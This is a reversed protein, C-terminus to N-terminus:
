VHPRRLVPVLQDRPRLPLGCTPLVGPHPPSGDGWDINLLGNDNSPAEIYGRLSVTGDAETTTLYHPCGFIAGGCDGALVVSDPQGKEFRITVPSSSASNGAYDQIGSHAPVTVSTDDAYPIVQSNPCTSPDVGSGNTEDQCLYSVTVDSSYSAATNPSGNLLTTVTPATADVHFDTQALNSKNGDFDISMAYLTHHGSASISQGNVTCSSPFDAWSTPATAPDLVCRTAQIGPGGADDGTVNLGVPSRYWEFTGDQSTQGDPSTPSLSIATTPPAETYDIEVTRRTGRL